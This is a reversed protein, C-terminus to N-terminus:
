SDGLLEKLNDYDIFGEDSLYKVIEEWDCYEVRGLDDALKDALRKYVSEDM